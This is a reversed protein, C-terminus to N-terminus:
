ATAALSAEFHFRAVPRTTDWQKCTPCQWFLLGSSFGCNECRYAPNREALKRLARMIRRLSDEDTGPDSHPPRLIELLDTLMPNRAIFERVCEATVPDDYGGDTIAAYAVGAKVEPHEAVLAALLKEFGATKDTQQYCYRLPSLVLPAFRPDQELVKRYLRSALRCDGDDAAMRARLIPARIGDRDASRAHRLHQRATDREQRVLAEEALECCYHAVIPSRAGDSLAAMRDRVAIARTWDREQEYIEVLRQLAQKRYAPREALRLLFAEARDLLGAKLYDDALARLAQDRHQRPLGPREFINQHIRIARDVEGRRRFLNGLAFHTEITESDVDVMRVFVELAKDPEENLLFNLGAFYDASFDDGRKDPRDKDGTLRAFFWGGAAAVVFLLALLLTSDAPM